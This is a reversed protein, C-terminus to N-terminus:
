DRNRKHRILAIGGLSLLLALGAVALYPLIADGTKALQEPITPVAVFKMQQSTVSEDIESDEVNGTGLNYLVEFCVTTRNEMNRSDFTPLLIDLSGDCQTAQLDTSAFVLHNLAPSDSDLLSRLAAYDVTGTSKLVTDKGETKLTLKGNQDKEYTIDPVEDAIGLAQYLKQAFEKLQDPTVDESYNGTLLPLNTKTDFLITRFQYDVGCTLHQYEVVDTLRTNESLYTSDGKTDAGSEMLLTGIEPGSADTGPLNEIVGLDVMSQDQVIEIPETTTHLTIQHGLVNANNAACPLETLLYTDYPLPRLSDSVQSTNGQSDTGFWIGATQDLQKDMVQASSVDVQTFKGEKDATVTYGSAAADNGNTNQTAPNAATNFSGNQDTTIVHSEGTSTSTLLFACNALKKGSLQDIKSFTLDGRIVQEPANLWEFPTAGSEGQEALPRAPALDIVVSVPDTLPLYGEPAKTETFVYTGLPFGPKGDNMYLEDGGVLADPNTLDIQGNEDTKFTWVRIPAGSNRAEEPSSYYGDYHEVTFEADALSAGGQPFPLGTETDLKKLIVDLPAFYPKNEITVQTTEHQKVTVKQPTNDLIMGEPATLEKIYYTGAELANSLAAAGTTKNTVIRGISKKCEPSDYLGLVASLNYCSNGASISPNSSIKTVKIRGPITGVLSVTQMTKDSSTWITICSNLDEDSGDYSLAKKCLSLGGKILSDDDIWKRIFDTCGSGYNDPNTGHERYLWLAIQTVCRAQNASWNTGGITKTFPYGNGVIYAAKPDKKSTLTYTAETTPAWYNPQYCYALSGDTKQFAQYKEGGTSIMVSEFKATTAAQAEPPNMLSGLGSPFLGLILSAALLITLWPKLTTEPYAKLITESHTKLTTGSHSKLETGSHAKPRSKCLHTRM